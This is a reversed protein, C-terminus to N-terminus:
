EALFRDLVNRTVTSVDDDVLLSATYTISGASFVAGGSDTGYHAMEAGGDDPNTGKAVVETGEPAYRSLKDTEHGSAGGSVREQLSATGFLDGDSLGTGDFVWHSSQRVRYPAATMIGSQSYTVGLLAGESEVRSHFRSEYGGDAEVHAGENVVGDTNNNVRMRSDDLFEVEANLGNGGLYLLTGGRDFVWAKLREYMERSWYEPHTHVVATRYADLDLTGDHLQHDAYLDYGYGERELWGLLRWEAPALHSEEKGRIPDTVERDFPIHHFPCPREFSLPEYEHDERVYTDEMQFRDLQSRAHVTPEPPLGAPNVYNSRGGFRNYANWTNTAALVAVDSRPEAPAVVWPFSFTEGSHKGEMRFYYLGSRDPAVVEQSHDYDYGIRNWRVGSRTFDGDPLLQLGPRPGHEDHWDVVRVEETELGYRWLSLRTDEPTHVRYEGVEGARVWKPWVYGLMDTSLLRFHHVDGDRVDVDTPKGGYGDTQLTVRYRGPPVDATVAGTPTSETVAVTRGDREFEVRVGPLAEYNENSVYGVLM